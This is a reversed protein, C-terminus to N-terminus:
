AKRRRSKSSHRCRHRHHRREDESSSASDHSNSRRRRKDDSEKKRRKKGGRHDDTNDYEHRHKSRSRSRDGSSNSEDDGDDDGDKKSDRGRSSRRRSQKKKAHKKMSKSSLRRRRTKSFTNSYGPSSDDSRNGRDDGMGVGCDVIVVRQMNVPKGNNETEVQSAATIVDMGHVVKGFAVHKGDLHLAKGLTIFFQSSNTNKGKNAMSLVGMQNHSLCSQLNEDPFTPNGKNTTPAAFGGTGDFNIFDGGQIMFNPIIRHFVTGRYTPEVHHQFSPTSSTATVAAPGRKTARASSSCLEIFNRCTIPCRDPYLQFVVRRPSSGAISINFYCHM